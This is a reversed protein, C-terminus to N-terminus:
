QHINLSLSSRIYRNMTQLLFGSKPKKSCNKEWRRTLSRMSREEVAHELLALMLKKGERSNTKSLDEIIGDDTPEAIFSVLDM